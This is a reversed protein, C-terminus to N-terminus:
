REQSALSGETENKLEFFFSRTTIPNRDYDSRTQQQYDRGHSTVLGCSIDRLPLTFSHVPPFSSRWLIPLPFSKQRLPPGLMQAAEQQAFWHPAGYLGRSGDNHSRSSGARM